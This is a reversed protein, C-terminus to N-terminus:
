VFCKATVMGATFIAVVSGGLLAFAWYVGNSQREYHEREYREKCEKKAEDVLWAHLFEVYGPTGCFLRELYLARDRDVHYRIHQKDAEDFEGKEYALHYLFDWEEEATREDLYGGGIDVAKAAAMLREEDFRRMGAGGKGQEGVERRSHQALFVYFLQAAHYVRGDM